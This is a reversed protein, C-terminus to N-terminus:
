FSIGEKLTLVEGNINVSDINKNEKATNMLNEVRNFYYRFTSRYDTTLVGIGITIEDSIKGRVEEMM